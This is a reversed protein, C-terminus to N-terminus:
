GLITGNTKFVPGELFGVWKLKERVSSFAQPKSLEPQCLRLRSSFQVISVQVTPHNM